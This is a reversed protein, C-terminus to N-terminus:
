PKNLTFEPNKKMDSHCCQNGSPALIPLYQWVDSSELFKALIKIGFIQWKGFVL